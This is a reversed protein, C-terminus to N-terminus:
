GHPASSIDQWRAPTAISGGDQEATQSQPQESQSERRVLIAPRGRRRRGGRRGALGRSGSARSPGSGQRRQQRPVYRDEATKAVAAEAKNRERWNHQRAYDSEAKRRRREEEEDEVMLGNQRTEMAQITVEDTEGRKRKLTILDELFHAQPQRQGLKDGGIHVYIGNNRKYREPIEERDRYKNSLVGGQFSNICDRDRPILTIEKFNIRAASAALLDVDNPLNRLTPLPAKDDHPTLILETGINEAWTGRFVLNRYSVVPNHSHLELIQIEELPKDNPQTSLHGNQAGQYEHSDDMTARPQTPIHPVGINDLDAEEREPQEEDDPDQNDEVLDPNTPRPEPVNYLPNYWVRYGGRTNHVIDDTRRELFDRVSFDLTLYYTETETASYEYEWDDEGDM